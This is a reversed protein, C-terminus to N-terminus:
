LVGPCWRRGRRQRACVEEGRRSRTARRRSGSGPGPPTFWSPCLQRRSRCKCSGWSPPDSAHNLGATTVPVSWAAWRARRLSSRCGGQGARLGSLSGQLSFRLGVIWGSPRSSQDDSRPPRKRRAWVPIGPQRELGFFGEGANVQGREMLSALTHTCGIRQQWSSNFESTQM